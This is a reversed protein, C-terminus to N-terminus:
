CAKNPGCHHVVPKVNEGKANEAQFHPKQGDQPHADHRVKGGPPTQKAAAEKAGKRTSHEVTHVKPKGSPGLRSEAVGKAVNKAREAAAGSKAADAAKDAVRAAKIATGVGGPLVPVAAAASDVVVGVADLAAAGYNGDSVNSALSAVGLGINFVDWATEIIRGDPDKFKYPNNAAYNYRNFNWGTVTDAAVPDVSLFRGIGPDYYRQQMYGLGTAADSVHGTYGPGDAVPTPALQRGYPEYERREIVVGNSDTVAVVSGLADTHIYEVTAAQATPMALAALLGCIAGKRLYQVVIGNM